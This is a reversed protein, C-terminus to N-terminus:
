RKGNLYHEKFMEREVETLANDMMVTAETLYSGPVHNDQYQEFRQKLEYSVPNSAESKPLRATRPLWQGQAQYAQREDADLIKEKFYNEREDAFWTNADPNDEYTTQEGRRIKQELKPRDTLVEHPREPETDHFTKNLQDILYPQDRHHISIDQHLAAATLLDYDSLAHVAAINKAATEDTYDANTLGWTKKELVDTIQNLAKEPDMDPMGDNDKFRINTLVHHRNDEVAALANDRINELRQKAEYHGFSSDQYARAQDSIRLREAPGPQSPVPKNRIAQVRNITKRLSEQEEQLNDHFEDPNDPDLFGLSPQKQFAEIKAQELTLRRGFAKAKKVRKTTYENGDDETPLEGQDDTSPSTFWAISM